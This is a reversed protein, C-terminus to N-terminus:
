FDDGPKYKRITMERDPNTFYLYAAVLAVGIVGGWMAGTLGAALSNTGVTRATELLADEGAADAAKKVAGAALHANIYAGSIAGVLLGAGGMWLKSLEM